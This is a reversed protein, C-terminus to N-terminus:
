GSFVSEQRSVSQRNRALNKKHISRVGAALRACFRAPLARDAARSGAGRGFVGFGCVPAGCGAFTASEGAKAGRAPGYVAFLKDFTFLLCDCHGGFGTRSCGFIM